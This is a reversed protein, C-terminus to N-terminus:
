KINISNIKGILFPAYNNIFYILPSISILIFATYILNVFKIQLLSNLGLNNFLLMFFILFFKHSCLIILSNKGWYYIISINSLFSSLIIVFAIGSFAGLYFLFINGYQKNIVDVRENIGSVFINTVFALFLVLVYSMKSLHIKHIIYNNFIYGIGFFSVSIFAIQLNWPLILDIFKFSIFGVITILLISIIINPM